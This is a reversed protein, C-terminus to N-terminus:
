DFEGKRYAPFYDTNGANCAKTLNRYQEHNLIKTCFYVPLTGTSWGLKFNILGDKGKNRIGPSGGLDLWRVKDSFYHMLYWKTAYSARLKYGLPSFAALHGFAVEGQVYWLDLGVTIGKSVARFMVIGPISLQKAFATQSFAKIGTINYKKMLHAFLDVWEDLFLIPNPCYVVDINRLARRVTARHSRSVIIDIPYSFDVIYHEKFPIAKDFCRCLYALDYKGFPDAVLSLSVLENELSKLDFHLKSWDQCTFLPYCGIGDYYSSGPIQRKLIWGKCRPLEFPTGFEALSEAYGPHLYGSLM